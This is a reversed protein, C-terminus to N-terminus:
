SKRDRKVVTDAKQDLYAAADVKIGAKKRLMENEEQLEAIQQAPDIVGTPTLIKANKIADERQAETPGDKAMSAKQQAISKMSTIGHRVKENFGLVNREAAAQAKKIDTFEELIELDVPYGPHLAVDGQKIKFSSNALRMPGNPKLVLYKKEM